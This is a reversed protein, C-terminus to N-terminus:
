GIRAKVARLLEGAKAVDARLAPWDPEDLDFGPYRTEAYVEAYTDVLPSVIPMLDSGRANLYSELKRLDHTKELPWGQRILEAKLLKEIVEALKGRCMVIGLEQSALAQIGEMDSECIWIWDAPNNSDTKRPM